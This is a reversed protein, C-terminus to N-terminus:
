AEGGNLKRGVSSKSVGLREAIDRFSLGQKQLARMTVEDSGRQIDCTHWRGEILKAEFPQADPGFFGRHKTFYVEFRAGQNADYDPPLRLSVVSDLVDEKRSTGRQAGSKGAHHILLVRPAYAAASCRAAVAGLLSAGYWGRWSFCESQPPLRWNM